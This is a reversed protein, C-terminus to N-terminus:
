ETISCGLSQLGEANNEHTDTEREKRLLLHTVLTHLRMMKMVERVLLHKGTTKAMSQPNEMGCCDTVPNLVLTAQTVM